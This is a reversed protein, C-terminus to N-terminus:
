LKPTLISINWRLIKEFVSHKLMLFLHGSSDASMYVTRDIGRSRSNKKRYWCEPLNGSECIMVCLRRGLYKLVTRDPQETKETVARERMAKYERSVTVLDCLDKVQKGIRRRAAAGAAETERKGATRGSWPPLLM